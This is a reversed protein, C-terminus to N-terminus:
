AKAKHSFTVRNGFPDKLTMDRTGWETSEVSPKWGRYNKKLLAANYEELGDYEIWAAAGPCCDGHHESLHLVCDGMSIQMYVPFDPEFRHQWDIKFGLFDIYFERAKQEDFIRFVPIASSAKMEESVSLSLFAGRLAGRGCWRVYPDRIRRNPQDLRHLM